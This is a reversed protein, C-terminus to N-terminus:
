PAAKVEIKRAAATEDALKPLTVKLVGKAFDASIKNVDIGSPLELRRLFSGYSRETIRYGGKSADKSAKKEGQITLIGDAFTVHVDKEDVGPLEAEIEISKDTENVDLAPALLAAGAAAPAFYSGLNDEFLRNMERQLSQFTDARALDPRRGFPTVGRFM